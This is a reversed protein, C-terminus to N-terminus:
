SKYQQLMQEVESEIEKRLDDPGFVTAKPGMGLIWRKISHSGNLTAKFRIANNPLEEIVQNESYISEKVQNSFPTEIVLEVELPERIFGLQPFQERIDFDEPIDYTNEMAEVQHIRIIKFTQMDLKHECYAVCYINEDYVVFAYPNIMRETVKNTSAAEYTIM